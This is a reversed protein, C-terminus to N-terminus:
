HSIADYSQVLGHGYQHSPGLNQATQQLLERLEVNSLHPKAEWVQAAVGAVHPAAMSTGNYSDYSNGPITSLVNVGPASLEVAPGTSSFTARNNNQDVAAVAIASDYKAPYGVSDNNGGRNGSNGAAAVVLIGDEYALDTYEELISSSQSGGLSMNVIDMDNQISWELGEAIGSYSGSGSNNLVKVAYLDAKPAVGLVGVNNDLAAVTGAVHTGHGSGDYYPDNNDSDDFVSHGGVVNLDEHSADIGTDLIAVKVGNGTYGADQSTTGQVHPVGWPITQSFAKADANSEVHEVHPHNQLGNAQGDTLNLHYVPLLDFRHLVDEDDVGFAKLIGSKAPGDFMVLYDSKEEKTEAAFVHQFPIFLLLITSLVILFKKM